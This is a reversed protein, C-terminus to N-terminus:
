LLLTGTARVCGGGAHFSYFFPRPRNEKKKRSRCRRKEGRKTGVQHLYVSYPGGVYEGQLELSLKRAYKQKM